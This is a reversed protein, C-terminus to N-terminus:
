KGMVSKIFGIIGKKKPQESGFNPFTPYSQQVQQNHDTNVPEPHNQVFGNSQYNGTGQENKIAEYNQIMANKEILEREKINLKTKLENLQQLLNTMERAKKIMEQHETSEFMDHMIREETIEAHVMYYAIGNTDAPRGLILQYLKKISERRKNPDGMPSNFGSNQMEMPRSQLPGQPLSNFNPINPLDRNPQPQSAPSKPLTPIPNQMETNTNLKPSEYPIKLFDAIAHAMAEATCTFDEEFVYDVINGAEIIFSKTSLKNLIDFAKPKMESEEVDIEGEKDFYDLLLKKLAENEENTIVHAYQNNSLHIELYINESKDYGHNKIWDIRESINIDFPLVAAGIQNRSLTEQLSIAIQKCIDFETQNNNKIGPTILTHGGGILIM